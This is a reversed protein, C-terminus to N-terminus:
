SRGDKLLDETTTGDHYIHPHRRLFTAMGPSWPEEIEFGPDREEWGEWAAGLLGEGRAYPHLWVLSLTAVSRWRQQGGVEARISEFEFVATGVARLKTGEETTWLWAERGADSEAEYQNFDYRFEQKFFGALTRIATHLSVQSEENVLHAAGIQLERGPGTLNVGDRRWGDVIRRRNIDITRPDILPLLIDYRSPERM